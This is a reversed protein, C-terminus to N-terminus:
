ENEDDADDGIELGEGDLWDVLTDRYHGPSMERLVPGPEFEAGAICVKGHVELLYDDYRNQADDESVVTYAM